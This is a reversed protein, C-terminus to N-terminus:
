FLYIMIFSFCFILVLNLMLFFDFFFYYFMVFFDSTFYYVLVFNLLFLSFLWFIFFLSHNSCYQQDLHCFVNLFILLLKPFYLYVLFVNFQFQVVFYNLIQCFNLFYFKLNLYVFIVILFYHYLLLLYDNILFNSFVSFYCHLNILYLHTLYSM